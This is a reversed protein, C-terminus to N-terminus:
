TGRSKTRVTWSEEELWEIRVGSWGSAKREVVLVLVVAVM